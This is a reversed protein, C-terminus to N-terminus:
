ELGRMVEHFRNPPKPTPAPEVAQRGKPTLGFAGLLQMAATRTSELLRAAPNAKIAGTSSTILMGDRAIQEELISVSALTTALLELARLDARSLVGMGVAAVALGDWEQQARGSLHTPAPPVETLRESTVHRNRDARDTGRLAKTTLNAHRSM